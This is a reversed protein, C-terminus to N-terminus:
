LVNRRWSFVFFLKLVFNLKIKKKKLLYKINIVFIVRVVIFWLMCINWGWVFVVLLFNLYVFFYLLCVLFYCVLGIFIFLFYLYRGKRKDFINFCWWLLLFDIFCNIVFGVLWGLCRVGFMVIFCGVFVLFSILNLNVLYLGFFFVDVFNYVM